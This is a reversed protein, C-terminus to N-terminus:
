RTVRSHFRGARHQASGVSYLEAYGSPPPAEPGRAQSDEVTPVWEPACMLFHIIGPDAAFKISGIM